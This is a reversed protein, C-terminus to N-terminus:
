RCRHADGFRLIRYSAKYRHGFSHIWFLGSLRRPDIQGRGAVRPIHIKDETTSPRCSM